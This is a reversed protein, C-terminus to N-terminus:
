TKINPEFSCALRDNINRNKHTMKVANTDSLRTKLMSSLRVTVGLNDSCFKKLTLLVFIM